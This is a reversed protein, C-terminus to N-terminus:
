GVKPMKSLKEVVKDGFEITSIMNVGSGPKSLDATSFGDAFVGQMAAWVNKAEDAMDFSNELMMAVSGIMSYPNAINKGAIDPASGHSPEYYAKDDGICASPMLGLSGLIGGGQDSLIDGFMNEMVMVDFQTPKLCLLTAAADVLINIVEIEPYEVAVEELIENWLVSSKLVNSKHINHLVKKRHGALKFAQHLIQRIQNEDYELTEKVYRLGDKNVGMEKEGFYLGGVLERVIIIDIGEGIIEAKLPSFHALEKPLSVPRFNAYTNYRRRMPLLAGREPQKDIPINKSEEHSLGIPGKLIADASDCIDKTEQPFADGTAFYACAGFLAPMLEFSVDNREEILKLVKVAERTIEPGIGDGALIAIKYNKM